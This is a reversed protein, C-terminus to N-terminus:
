YVSIKGQEKIKVLVKQEKETFDMLESETLNNIHELAMDVAMNKVDTTKFQKGSGQERQLIFEVDKLMLQSMDPTYARLFAIRALITDYSLKLIEKYEKTNVYESYAEKDWGFYQELLKQKKLKEESKNM